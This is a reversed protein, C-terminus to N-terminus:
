MGVTKFNPPGIYSRNQLVKSSISSSKSPVFVPIELSIHEHGIEKVIHTNKDEPIVPRGNDPDYYYCLM